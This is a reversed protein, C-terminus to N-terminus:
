GIDAYSPPLPLLLMLTFGPCLGYSGTGLCFPVLPSLTFIFDFLKGLMHSARPEFQPAEPLSPLRLPLPHCPLSPFFIWVTWKKIEAPSPISGLAQVHQGDV